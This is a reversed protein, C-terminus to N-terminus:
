ATRSPLLNEDDVAEPLLPQAQRAVHLQQAAFTAGVATSFAAGVLMAGWPITGPYTKLLVGMQLLPFAVGGIAGCAAVLPFSLSDLTRRRGLFALASAFFAGNIAGGIAQRALIMGWFESPPLHAGFVTAVGSILLTLSVWGLTWVAASKAIGKLVRLLRM